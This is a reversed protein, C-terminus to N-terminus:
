KERGFVIRDGVRWDGETYDPDWRGHGSGKSGGNMGTWLVVQGYKGSRLNTVMYKANDVVPSGNAASAAAVDYNFYTGNNLGSNHDTSWVLFVSSVLGRKPVVAPAEVERLSKGRVPAERRALMSGIGRRQVCATSVMSSKTVDTGCKTQCLTLPEDQDWRSLAEAM